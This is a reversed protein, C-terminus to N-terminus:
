NWIKPAGPHKRGDGRGSQRGLGMQRSPLLHTWGFSMEFGCLNATATEHV